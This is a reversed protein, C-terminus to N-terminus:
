HKLLSGEFDKATVMMLTATLCICLCGNILAAFKETGHLMFKDAEDFIILSNEEPVFDLGVKYEM